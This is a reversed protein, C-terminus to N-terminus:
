QFQTRGFSDSRWRREEIWSGPSLLLPPCAPDGAFEEMQKDLGRVTYVDNNLPSAASGPTTEVLDPAFDGIGNGSQLAANVWLLFGQTDPLSAAPDHDGAIAALFDLLIAAAGDYSLRLIETKGRATVTAESDWSFHAEGGTGRLHLMAGENMKSAHTLALKVLGGSTCEAELYATDYSEIPRARLLRGRMRLPSGALSLAAQVVHALANTAPGDFVPNGELRMRGAWAAREYYATDRSWRVSAWVDTLAGIVGEAIVTQMYRMVPSAQMQFGVACVKGSAHQAATIEEFEALTACPPKELYVHKGAQLAAIAQRAHLWIPTAIVIADLDSRELLAHSDELIDIGESRLGACVEPFRGAAPDAVAVLRCLGAHHLTRLARLHVQAYGGIGIIGIGPAAKRM